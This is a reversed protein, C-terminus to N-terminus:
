NTDFPPLTLDKTVMINFTYGPNVTVTPKAGIVREVILNGVQSSAEGISNLISSKGINTANNNCIYNDNKDYFCNNNQTNTSASILSPISLVSSLLSAGIISGWHNNLVEGIGSSGLSSVAPLKELIISSGDPRILRNFGIAIAKEGYNINTSYSGILRSGKPIILYKGHVSDYINKSAIGVIFGSLDSVIKTQLVAPISTGALIDYPTDPYVVKRKGTKSKEGANNQKIAHDSDIEETDFLLVQSVLGSHPITPKPEKTM